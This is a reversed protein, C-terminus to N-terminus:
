YMQIFGVLLCILYLFAGAHIKRLIPRIEGVGDLVYGFYQHIGLCLLGLAVTALVLLAYLLVDM